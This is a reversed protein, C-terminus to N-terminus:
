LLVASFSFHLLNTHTKQKRSGGYVFMNAWLIGSQLSQYGLRSTQVNCVSFVSVGVVGVCLCWILVYVFAGSQHLQWLLKSGREKNNHGKKRLAEIYEHKNKKHNWYVSDSLCVIVGQFVLFRHQATM